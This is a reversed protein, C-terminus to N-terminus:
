TAHRVGLSITTKAELRNKESNLQFNDRNNEVCFQGISFKKSSDVTNYEVMYEIIIYELNPDGDTNVDIKDSLYFDNPFLIINTPYNRNEAHKEIPLVPISKLAPAMKAAISISLGISQSQGINRISLEIGLRDDSFRSVIPESDALVWARTEAHHQERAIQNADQATVIASRTLRITWLLGVVSVVTALLQLYSVWLSQRSIEAARDAIEASRTAIPVSHEAAVTARRQLDLMERDRAEKEPDDIQRIPLALETPPPQKDFSKEHTQAFAIGSGIFTWSLLWITIRM